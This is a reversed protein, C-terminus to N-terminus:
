SRLPAAQYRKKRNDTQHFITADVITGGHMMPGAQELREKIDNFSEEGPHHEELRLRFKLLATANLIQEQAVGYLEGFWVFKSM